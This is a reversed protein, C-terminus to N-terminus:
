PPLAERHRATNEAALEKGFKGTLVSTFVLSAQLHQKSERQKGNHFHQGPSICCGISIEKAAAM